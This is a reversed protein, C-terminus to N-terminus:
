KGVHQMCSIKCHPIPNALLPVHECKHFFNKIGVGLWIIWILVNRYHIILHVSHRFPSKHLLHYFTWTKVFLMIGFSTSKKQMWFLIISDTYLWKNGNINLKKNIVFFWKPVWKDSINASPLTHICVFIFLDVLHVSYQM